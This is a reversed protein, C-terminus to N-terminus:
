RARKCPTNLTSRCVTRKQATMRPAAPRASIGDTALHTLTVTTSLRDDRHTAGFTLARTNHSGYESDVSYHTGDETARASQINIVGGM